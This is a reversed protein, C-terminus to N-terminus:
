QLLLSIHSLKIDTDFIVSKIISTPTSLKRWLLFNVGVHFYSIAPQVHFMVAVLWSISRFLLMHNSILSAM